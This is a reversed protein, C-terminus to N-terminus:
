FVEFCFVDNVGDPSLAYEGASLSDLVDIRGIDAATNAIDARRPFAGGRGKYHFNLEHHGNRVDLPFLRFKDATLNEAEILLTPRALPTRATSSEGSVIYTIENATTQQRAVSAETAILQDAHVLYVTDKRPLRPGAYEMGAILFGALLIAFTCPRFVHEHDAPDRAQYRKMPWSM